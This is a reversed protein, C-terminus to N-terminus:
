LSEELLKRALAKLLAPNVNGNAVQETFRIFKDAMLEARLLMVGLENTTYKGDQNSM